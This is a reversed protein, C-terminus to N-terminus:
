REGSRGTSSSCMAPWGGSSAGESAVEGSRWRSAVPIVAQYGPTTIHCWTWPSRPAPTAPGVILVPGEQLQGPNRYQASHLQVIRSDLAATFPPIRPRQFGGTAVVVHDAEIRWGDGSLVYGSGQRCLRDVVTRLRLPLAFRAAYAELYDAMADKTPYVDPPLPFPMGPLGDYAAPTLLRLSDWRRRWTEGIREHRDVMVFERGQAALYYGTALGAQGAGVIVTDFREREIRHTQRDM